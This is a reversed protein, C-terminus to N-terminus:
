KEASLKTNKSPTLNTSFATNEKKSPPVALFINQMPVALLTTPILSMPHKFYQFVIVVLHQTVNGLINSESHHPILLMSLQFIKQALILIDLTKLIKQILVCSVMKGM